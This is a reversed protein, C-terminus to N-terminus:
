RRRRLVFGGMDGDENRNLEDALARLRALEDESHARLLPSRGQEILPIDQQYAESNLFQDSKSDFFTREVKLGASAALLHM